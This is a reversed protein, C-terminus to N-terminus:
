LRNALSLIRAEVKRPGIQFHFDLAADLGMLLSRNGTGYQMLRFAGDERNDWQRSALTTWLSNVRDRRVYLFGNGGPALLWKHPSSFYADCDMEKLNVRVHGVAQAGDIVSFLGRARALRCLRNVPLRIATASIIHPVALVKTRETIAKSFLDVVTDPDPPPIPIPVPKWRIGFRKAQLQWGCVGGPHEQDTTLVEDGPKLDLGNAVFNMGFTANQTLAVEEPSANVLRGLKERLALEPYYGSYWDPEGPTFNWRTIREHLERMHDTTRELVPRPVSGLSGTNFYAEDAPFYFQKRVKRWFEAEESLAPTASLTTSGRPSAATAAPALFPLSAIGLFGRRNLM